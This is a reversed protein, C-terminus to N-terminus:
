ECENNGITRNRKFSPGRKGGSSGEEETITKSIRENRMGGVAHLEDDADLIGVDEGNTRERQTSKYGVNSM